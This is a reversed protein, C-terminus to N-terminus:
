VELWRYILANADGEFLVRLWFVSSSGDYEVFSSDKQGKSWVLIKAKRIGNGDKPAKLSLSRAVVGKDDRIVAFNVKNHYKAGLVKWMVPTIPLPTMLLMRPKKDSDKSAWEIVKTKDEGKM